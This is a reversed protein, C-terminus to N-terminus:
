SEAQPRPSDAEASEAQSSSEFDSGDLWDAVAPAHIMM